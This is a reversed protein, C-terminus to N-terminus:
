SRSGCGACCSHFVSHAGRSVFVSGDLLTSGFSVLQGAKSQLSSSMGSTDSTTRSRLSPPSASHVSTSGVVVREVKVLRAAELVEPAYEIGAVHLLVDTGALARYLVETSRADSRVVEVREPDLRSVGTSGQRVLCRVEEHGEALLLQLIAGGLLGTAGTLLVRM